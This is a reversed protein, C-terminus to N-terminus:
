IESHQQQQQFSETMRGIFVLPKWQNPYVVVDSVRKFEIAARGGGGTAGKPM